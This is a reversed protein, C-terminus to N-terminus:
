LAPAGFGKGPDQHKWALHYPSVQVGCPVDQGPRTSTGLVYLLIPGGSCSTKAWATAAGKQPWRWDWACFAHTGGLLSVCGALNACACGDYM